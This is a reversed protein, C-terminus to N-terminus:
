KAKESLVEEYLEVHKQAVNVWSNQAVYRRAGEELERRWMDNILLKRIKRRLEKVNKFTTLAGLKEKERTPKLSSAIVAKQHSLAMLLAGSESMSVSPYTVVRMAGYVVPLMEDEVYGLWQVRGPLMSMSREKLEQMYGTEMGTHYGGGILLAAEKVKTMANIVYELGKAPTIFGVYGVLPAEKPVGLTEKCEDEPPCEIPDLCGHPIIVSDGVFRKRCYENHVIVKDSANALVRDVMFNMGVAHATTIIPLGLQKLEGYFGGELGGWIGYEHQVHLLDIKDKPIKHVVNALLEPTKVGFRPMRIIFVEVGLGAM